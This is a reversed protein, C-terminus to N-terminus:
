VSLLLFDAHAVSILTQVCLIAACLDEKAYDSMPYKKFKKLSIHDQYNSSFLLSKIEMLFSGTNIPYAIKKGMIKLNRPITNEFGNINGLYIKEPHFFTKFM